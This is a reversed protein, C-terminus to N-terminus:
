KAETYILTDFNHLKTNLSKLSNTNILLIDKLLMQSGDSVVPDDYTLDLHLWNNNIFVLNWIHDNTAIKYNNINFKDLFLAMSDTYSTCLGYGNLLIHNAKGVKTENNKLYYSNNIIYNHITEIKEIDTMNNTIKSNIIENVKNNLLVIDNNNYKKELTIDIKNNDFIASISTFSNYPHVFNNINSLIANDDIISKFDDVCTDYYTDCYFTFSNNGSNIITYLINITEIKNNTIFDNTLKVYNYSVNKSYENNNITIEKNYLNKQRISKYIDERYIFAIIIGILLLILFIKLLTKMDKVLKIKHYIFFYLM